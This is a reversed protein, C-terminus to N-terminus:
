SVVASSSSSRGFIKRRFSPRSGNSAPGSGLRSLTSRPHIPETPLVASPELATPALPPTQVDNQIIAKELRSLRQENEISKARALRTQRDADQRKLLDELTEIRQRLASQSPLHQPSIPDIEESLSRYSGAQYLAATQQQSKTPSLPSQCNRCLTPSGVHSIAPFTQQRQGTSRTDASHSLEKSTQTERGPATGETSGAHVLDLSTETANQHLEQTSQKRSPSPDLERLEAESESLWMELITKQAKVRSRAMVAEWTEEFQQGHRIFSETLVDQYTSKRNSHDSDEDTSMSETVSDTERNSPRDRDSRVTRSSSEFVSSPPNPTAPPVQKSPTIRPEPPPPSHAPIESSEPWPWMHMTVTWDPQVVTEWLSPLVLAGSLDILDFHGRKVHNVLESNEVHTFAQEILAEM